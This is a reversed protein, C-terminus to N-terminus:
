KVDKLDTITVTSKDLGNIWNEFIEKGFSNQKPTYLMAIKEGLVTPILGNIKFNKTPEIGFSIDGYKALYKNNEKLLKVSALPNGLIGSDQLLYSAAGITSMGDTEWTPILQESNLYSGPIIYGRGLVISVDLLAAYAHFVEEEITGIIWLARTNISGPKSAEFALAKALLDQRWPENNAKALENFRDMWHLSFEPQGEDTNEEKEGDILQKSLHDLGMDCTQIRRFERDLYEIDRMILLQDEASAEVCKTLMSKKADELNKIRAIAAAKVVDGYAMRMKHEAYKKSMTDSQSIFFPGLQLVFNKISKPFDKWKALSKESDM